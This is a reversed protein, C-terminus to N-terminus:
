ITHACNMIVDDFSFVKRTVTRQTLLLWRTGPSEGWLPCHRPAKINELIHAQVFPQAFLRSATSKLRWPACQSTICIGSNVWETCLVCCFGLDIEAPLWWGGNARAPSSGRMRNFMFRNIYINLVDFIYNCFSLVHVFVFLYCNLWYRKRRIRKIFYNPLQIWYKLGSYPGM